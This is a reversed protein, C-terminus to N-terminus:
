NPSAIQKTFTLARRLAAIELAASWGSVIAICAHSSWSIRDILPAVHVWEIGLWGKMWDEYGAERLSEWPSTEGLAGHAWEQVGTYECTSYLAYVYHMFGVYNSYELIKYVGFLAALLWILGDNPLCWQTPIVLWKSFDRSGLYVKDVRIRANDVREKCQEEIDRECWAPFEWNLIRVEGCIRGKRTCPAECEIDMPEGDEYTEDWNICYEMRDQGAVREGDEFLFEHGEGPCNGYDYLLEDEQRVDDYEPRKFWNRWGVVPAETCAFCGGCMTRRPCSAEGDMWRQHLPRCSCAVVRHHATVTWRKTYTKRGYRELLPNNFRCRFRRLGCKGICRLFAKLAWVGIVAVLCDCACATVYAVLVRNNNYRVYDLPIWVAKITGYVGYWSVFWLCCFVIALAWMPVVCGFANGKRLFGNILQLYDAVEFMRDNLKKAQEFDLIANTSAELTVLKFQEASTIGSAELDFQELWDIAKKNLVYTDSVTRGGFACQQVLFANLEEKYNRPLIKKGARPVMSEMVEQAIPKKEKEAGKAHGKGTEVQASGM